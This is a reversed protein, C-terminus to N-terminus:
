GAKVEQAHRTCSCRSFNGYEGNVMFVCLCTEHNEVKCPPCMGTRTIPESRLPMDDHGPYNSTRASYLRPHASTAGIPRTM